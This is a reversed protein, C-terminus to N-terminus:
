SRYLPPSPFARVVRLQRGGKSPTRQRRNLVIVRKFPYIGDPVNKSDHMTGVSRRPFARNLRKADKGSEGM